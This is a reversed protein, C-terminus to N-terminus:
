YFQTHSKNLTCIEYELKTRGKGGNKTPSPFSPPIRSMCLSLIEDIVENLHEFINNNWYRQVIYGQSNLWYTRENDYHINEKENHQGGDLEIIVKAQHCVFDVIHKKGIPAQRRFKFGAIQKQRLAQWLKREADTMNKRLQQSYSILKNKQMIDGGKREKGWLVPPLSRSLLMM